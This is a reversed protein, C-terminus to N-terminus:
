ADSGLQALLCRLRAHIDPRTYGPRIRLAEDNSRQRALANDDGLQRHLETIRERALTLRQQLETIRDRQTGQTSSTAHTLLDCYIVGLDHRFTAALRLAEGLAVLRETRQMRDLRAHKIYVLATYKLSGFVSM